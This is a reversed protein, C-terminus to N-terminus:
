RNCNENSFEEQHSHSRDPDPPADAFDCLTILQLHRQTDSTRCDVGSLRRFRPVTIFLCHLLDSIDMKALSCEGQCLYLM